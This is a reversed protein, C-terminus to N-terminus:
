RAASKRTRVTVLRVAPRPAHHPSVVVTIVVAELPHRALPAITWRRRYAPQNPVEAVVGRGDLDEEGGGPPPFPAARFEEIKQAALVAAYTAHRADVNARVAIVFLQALGAIAVALIGTAVLVEILSFGGTADIAPRNLPCRAM